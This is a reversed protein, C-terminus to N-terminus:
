SAKEMLLEETVTVGALDAVVEGRKAVVIRHAIALVTETESSVVIVGTGEAALDRVMDFVAAKAAIDMGRTPEVLVLVEPRQGILWRAFLVKQQNGGSLLGVPKRAAAGAIKLREIMSTALKDENGPRLWWGSLKHLRALTMNTTVPQELALGDRRDLPIFGVGRDRASTPNAIVATDDRLTVKGATPRGIGFLLDAVEVQGAGIHGYLALIEGERVEFSMDQVAPALGLGEARLLIPRGSPPPLVAEQDYSATLAEHHRGVIQRVLDERTTESTQTTGVLRGDRLVTVRDSHELVDELTHTVLVFGVGRESMKRVFRFLLPKEVGSLASTPEDLIVVRAGSFLARAIEVMQQQGVPLQEIRAGPDLDIGLEALHEAAKRKMESWRVWRGTGGRGLLNEAVTLEPFLSLEQYVVAIGADIGDAPTAFEVREGNLRIEGASPQEAGALCKMLTSKGAGNGGLLGHVEGARVDFDVGHLVRTSDYEKEIAVCACVPESGPGAPEPDSAIDPSHVGAM